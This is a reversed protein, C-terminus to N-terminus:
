CWVKFPKMAGQHYLIDRYDATPYAQMLAQQGVALTGRDYMRLAHAARYTLGAFTEATSLKEAAGMVAAQLLLNGMPATGPNWDSSIALCVGANLLKRAPAFPIGLGLTAGPLVVAVTNSAALLAMEKEGSAELHDASAAQLAVAIESGGITFQDAHVTLEFGLAKCQELFVRSESPLFGIEEIFIDVRKSLKHQLVQPLLQELMMNLYDRHSGSFDKPRTHAALCTPVLTASTHAAALQIAKLIKLEDAVSLGYGSKIEITTVGDAVLSEIRPLMGQVLGAQTAARTQQVTSWIGGGKQAIGLYSTGAVRLAYDEKRSGAFCIHTHCDVFGPLAVAPRTIEEVLADRYAKRLKDFNDIALIKQNQVCIGAHSLIHLREDPLAGKLPMSQMTLIQSFPGIIHM